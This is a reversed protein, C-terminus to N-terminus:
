ASKEMNVDISKGWVYAMKQVHAKSSKSFTSKAVHLPVSKGSLFLKNLCTSIVPTSSSEEKNKMLNRAYAFIYGTMFADFGARHTGGEVKKGKPKEQAETSAEPQSQENGNNSATKGPEDTPEANLNKEQHESTPVAQDLEAEEFHTRKGQPSSCTEPPGQSGKKKNKRKRKKRKDERTKEDQQIILDTNHSMPCKSGNPCWGYASFQVCINLPGDDQSQSDLCPRYDIYTEMNGTYKCFEVFLNSGSGEAEIAKSNELKCKKYAYELYSATFRLEYETAYKTDYIGSPFMQSLDATFTGLRDPLHAYFCQYLFVLDILGNHLVLPKNARLLEVFLSRINVGHADGGKDNGKYYPIGEAYQKNFDFGHQVLFQVSQPEIVYEESCLLTLNYVQVLYTTEAKNELEKYCAFGLSLVSRTRAAHCIANYRDEISEALLAKRSGLGSLETDIAIFSSTKIAIVMAAWLEKFNNGQVDIVPIIM